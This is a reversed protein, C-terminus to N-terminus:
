DPLTLMRTKPNNKMIKQLHTLIKEQYAGRWRALLRGDNSLLLFEPKNQDSFGQGIPINRFSNWQSNNIDFEGRIDNVQNNYGSTRYKAYSPNRKKLDLGYEFGNSLPVKLEVRFHLLSEGTYDYLHPWPQRNELLSVPSSMRPPHLTPYIITYVQLQDKYLLHAEHLIETTSDLQQAGPIQLYVLTYQKDPAPVVYSQHNRGKAVFSKWPGKVLQKETTKAEKFAMLLQYSSFARSTQNARRLMYDLESLKYNFRELWLNNLGAEHNSNAGFLLLKDKYKPTKYLEYEFANLVNDPSFILSDRSLYNGTIQFTDSTEVWFNAITFSPKGFPIVFISLRVPLEPVAANIVTNNGAFFYKLVTKDTM